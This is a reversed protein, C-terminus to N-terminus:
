YNSSFRFVMGCILLLIKLVIIVRYRDVCRLKVNESITEVTGSLGVDGDQEKGDVRNRYNM